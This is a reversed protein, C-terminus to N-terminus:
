YDDDAVAALEFKGCHPCCEATSAYYDSVGCYWCECWIEEM